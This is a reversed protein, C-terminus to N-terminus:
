DAPQPRSNGDGAIPLDARGTRAISVSARAPQLLAGGLGSTACAGTAAGEDGVIFAAFAGAAARGAAPLSLESATTAVSAGTTAGVACRPRALQYPGRKWPRRVAEPSRKSM